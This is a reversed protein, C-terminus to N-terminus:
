AHQKRYYWWYLFGLVLIAVLPVCIYPSVILLIPPRGFFRNVEYLDRLTSFYGPGGSDDPNGLVLVYKGKNQPTSVEVRYTGPGLEEEFVPGSLYRVGHSTKYFSEWSAADYPLRVVEDVGRNDDRDRVVIGRLLHVADPLDPELIEAHLTFKESSTVVFMHPFDHLEGYYGYLQNTSPVVTVDDARQPEVMVPEYAAAPFAAVLFAVFVLARM